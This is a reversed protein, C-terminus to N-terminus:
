KGYNAGDVVAKYIQVSPSRKTEIYFVQIMNKDYSFTVGNRGYNSSLWEVFERVDTGKYLGINEKKLNM